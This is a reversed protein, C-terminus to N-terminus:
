HLRFMLALTVDCAGMINARVTNDGGKTYLTTGAKIEQFHMFHPIKKHRLILSCPKTSTDVM